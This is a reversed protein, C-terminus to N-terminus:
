SVLQSPLEARPRPYGRIGSGVPVPVPLLIRGRAALPNSDKGAPMGVVQMLIFFGIHIIAWGM